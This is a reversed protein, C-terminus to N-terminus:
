FRGKGSNVRFNENRSFTDNEGIGFKEYAFPAKKHIMDIQDFDTGRDLRRIHRAGADLLCEYLEKESVRTNIPAMVHDLMYFVNHAFM